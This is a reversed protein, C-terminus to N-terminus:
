RLSLCWVGEVGARAIQVDGEKGGGEGGGGGGGLFDVIGGGLGVLDWQFVVLFGLGLGIFVLSAFKLGVM